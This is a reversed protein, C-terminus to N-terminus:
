NQTDYVCLKSRNFIYIYHKNVALAPNKMPQFLEGVQEWTGKVVNYLEIHTLIKDSAGGILYIENGVALANTEKAKPMNPLAYWLGSTANFVMAKNTYIKKGRDTVKIAGGFVFLNDGIGVAGFNAAQHPNMDDTYVKNNQLDFVEIKEDLYEFARNIALRKGGLIYVKGQLNVAKHNAKKRWERDSVRWSNTAIDYIQLKGSYGQWNSLKMLETAYNTNEAGKENVEQFALLALDRERQENGGFVYIKGDVMVSASSFIGRKMSKKRTFPVREKWNRKSTITVEELNETKKTLFVRFQLKELENYSLKRSWYGVSSFWI